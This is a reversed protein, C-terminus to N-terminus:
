PWDLDAIIPLHDSLGEGFVANHEGTVCSRLVSSIEPTAFLHDIQHAINGGRPNRFTPVLQGSATRLCEVLGLDAMRDLFERNGHPGGPWADFTESLNFDGCIIWAEDRLTERTSLASWLLDGIWVDPDLSLRVGTTDVAKLQSREVPWAPSYVNVVNLRLGEAVSVEWGSVNGAFRELQATAWERGCRLEIREGLPIRSLVVNYFRQPKGTKTIPTTKRVHFKDTIADPVGSVEQLFALDPALGLLYTWAPSTGSARRCNWCVVRMLTEDYARGEM